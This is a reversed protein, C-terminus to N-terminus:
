RKRKIFCIRLYDKGLDCCWIDWGRFQPFTLEEVTHERGLDGGPTLKEDSSTAWIERDRDKLDVFVATVSPGAKIVEAYHYLREGGLQRIRVRDGKRM